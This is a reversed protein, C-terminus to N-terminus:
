GPRKRCRKRQDREPPRYVAEVIRVLVDGRRHTVDDAGEEAARGRIKVHEQEVRQVDCREVTEDIRGHRQQTEDEAKNDRVIQRRQRVPKEGFGDRPLKFVM